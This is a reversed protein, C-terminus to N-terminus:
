LIIESFIRILGHWIGVIPDFLEILNNWLGNRRRPNRMKVSVEEEKRGQIFNM